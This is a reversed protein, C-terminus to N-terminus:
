QVRVHNLLEAKTMGAIGMSRATRGRLRYDIGTLAEALTFLSQAVPVALGAIDALELFSLLGHGFDERYYRHELSDPAKIHRNAVGQSIAAAYDHLDEVSSEVTGIQKMEEILNPLVHGLAKAVQLREKDLSVMTRAVGPTMADVYFTFDGGSAEVWASALVAGPPHLILNANCLSSALVDRVPAAGPFLHCALSQAKLGGPLCGVRVQQARGTVTVEDDQYKRAVYTLTSCEALPPIPAGRSRFVQAVELAGGTHGPNLILPLDAPWGADVLAAALASHTFTPLMIVAADVGAMAQQLDATILAPKALGAGLVGQYKVGGLAQLPELTARSRNWLVLEHGALCLEATAAMGGAGAGLIAIKM